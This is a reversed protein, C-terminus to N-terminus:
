KVYNSLCVKSNKGQQKQLLPPLGSLTMSQDKPPRGPCSYAVSLANAKDKSSWIPLYKCRTWSLVLVHQQPTHQKVLVGGAYIYYKCIFLKAPSFSYRKEKGKHVSHTFSKVPLNNSFLTSRPHQINWSHIPILISQTLSSLQFNLTRCMCGTYYPM